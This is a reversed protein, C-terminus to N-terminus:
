GEFGGDFLLSDGKLCGVGDVRNMKVIKEM